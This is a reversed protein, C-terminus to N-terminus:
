DRKATLPNPVAKPWDGRYAINRVRAETEDAFHFLGFTRANTPEVPRELIVMDNLAITLVSGSLTLKLRNWAKPRLPPSAPGRRRTPEITINDPELGAREYPIDTMRHLAVGDPRILFALRDLAPHVMAKGPEFYFEYEISGDELLPRRYRLLGELKSGVPSRPGAQNELSDVAFGRNFGNVNNMGEQPASAVSRGVIEDGRKRWAPGNGIAGGSSEASSWGALDPLSSLRIQDPVVPKGAITVNRASGGLPGPSEIALWPDAETPIAREFITRGDISVIIRRDRSALKWTVWDRKIDLSPNLRVDQLAQDDQWVSFAKRDGRLRISIGAYALNADRGPGTSLEGTFEFDGRLPVALLLADGGRGSANAWVGGTSSWSSRPFGRGRSSARTTAISAWPSLGSDDGFAVGRENAEGIARAQRVQRVWLDSAGLTGDSQGTAVDLAALASPRVKAKSLASWAATLEPWRMWDPDALKVTAARDKLTAFAAIAQDDWAQALRVMALLALRGREDVPSDVKASEVRGALADLRGTARAVEVLDGSPSELEGGAQVRSRGTPPSAAEVKGEVPAPDLPTFAGQLRFTPHDPGPL